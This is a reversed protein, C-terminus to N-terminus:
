IDLQGGDMRGLQQGNVLKGDLLECFQEIEVDGELGLQAAGKGAWSQEISDQFYYEDQSFFYDSAKSSSKVPSTSLM